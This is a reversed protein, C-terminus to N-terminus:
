MFTLGDRARETVGVQASRSTSGSLVGFDVIRNEGYRSGFSSTLGSPFLLLEPLVNEDDESVALIEEVLDALDSFTLRSKGDERRSGVLHNIRRTKVRAIPAVRKAISEAASFRSSL